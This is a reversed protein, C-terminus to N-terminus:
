PTSPLDSRSLKAALLTEPEEATLPLNIGAPQRDAVWRPPRPTM